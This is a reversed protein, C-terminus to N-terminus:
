GRMGRGFRHNPPALPTDQNQIYRKVVRMPAGGTSVACYAKSWFQPKGWYFQSLHKGFQQRMKRSSVSKLSNVLVSPAVKPSLDVLLHVHDAEGNFEELQCEMGECISGMCEEMVELMEPTIACKRYKTVFVLHLSIKYVCSRGKNLSYKM